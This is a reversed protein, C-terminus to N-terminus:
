RVEVRVGNVSVCDGSKCNKLFEGFEELNMDGVIYKMSPKYMRGTAKDNLDLLAAVAYHGICGRADENEMSEAIDSFEQVTKSWWEDSHTEKAVKSKHLTWIKNLANAEDKGYMKNRM